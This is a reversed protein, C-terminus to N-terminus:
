SFGNPDAYSTPAPIPNNPASTPKIPTSVQNGLNSPTLQNVTNGPNYLVIEDTQTASGQQLGVPYFTQAINNQNAASTQDNEPQLTDSTGVFSIDMIYLLEVMQDGYTVGMTPIGVGAFNLFPIVVAMPNVTTTSPDTIFSGYAVFWDAAANYQEWGNFGLRVSFNDDVFHRFYITRQARSQKQNYMMEMGYSMTMVRFSAGGGPIAATGTFGYAAFLSNEGAM